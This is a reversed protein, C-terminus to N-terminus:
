VNRFIGVAIDVTFNETFNCDVLMPSTLEELDFNEGSKWFVPSSELLSLTTAWSILLLVQQDNILATIFYKFKQLLLEFNFLTVHLNVLLRM